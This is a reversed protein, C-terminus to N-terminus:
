SWRILSTPRALVPLLPARRLIEDRFTDTCEVGFTKRLMVAFRIKTIAPESLEPPAYSVRKGYKRRIREGHDPAKLGVLFYYSRM